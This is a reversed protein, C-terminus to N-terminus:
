RRAPLRRRLRGALGTFCQEWSRDGVLWLWVERRYGFVVAAFEDSSAVSGLESGLRDWLWASPGDVAVVLESLARGDDIAARWASRQAVPEDPVSLDAWTTAGVGGCPGKV